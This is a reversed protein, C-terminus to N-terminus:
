YPLDEISKLWKKYFEKQQTVSGIKTLDLEEDFIMIEDTSSSVRKGLTLKYAFITTLQRGSPHVDIRCGKCLLKKGKNLLLERIRNFSTHIHVDEYEIHEDTDTYALIVKGFPKPAITIYGSFIKDSKYGKIKMKKYM